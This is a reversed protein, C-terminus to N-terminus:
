RIRLSKNDKIIEVGPVITGTAKFYEIIGRRDYKPEMAVFEVPVLKEDTIECSPPSTQLSVTLLPGKVKDVGIALMNGKAYDKLWKVRKDLSSAKRAQRNAEEKIVDREAELNRVVKAIGEIKFEFDNTIDILATMEDETFGAGTDSQDSDTVEGGCEILKTELKLFAETLEYLKAM